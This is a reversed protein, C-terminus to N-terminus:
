RLWYGMQPYLIAGLGYLVLWLLDTMKVPRRLLQAIGVWLLVLSILVSALGLTAILAPGAVFHTLLVSGGAMVLPLWILVTAAVLWGRGLNMWVM